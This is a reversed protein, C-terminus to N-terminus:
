ALLPQMPVPEIVESDESVESSVVIEELPLKFVQINNLLDQSLLDLQDGLQQADQSQQLIQQALTAISEIGTVTLDAAGVIRQSAISVTEGAQVAQTTVSQVNLFVERTYKVGKTFSNVLGGLQQVNINVASVVRHIQSSRQELNTLGANTEQALQSVQNAILEFERAVITFQQPDRQEAARAAVLAANLALIQTQTVIEGQDQVFQDTLGIFESLTKIEQVIRDSGIQLVDIDQDLNAITRHGDTVASQLITLSKNTSDLQQLANQASQRMTKTSRLVKGMSKTQRDINGTVMTTINKQRRGNAEVRRAAGAVQGLIKGLEETLRNIKDNVLGTVRNNVPAQITLDGSEIESVVDLLKSVDAQFQENEQQTLVVLEQRQQIEQELVDNTSLLSNQSVWLADQTLKQERIYGRVAIIIGVTNIVSLILSLLELAISLELIRQDALVQDNSINKIHAILTQISSAYNKKQQVYQEGLISASAATLKQEKVLQLVQSEIKFLQDSATNFQQQIDKDSPAVNQLFEKMVPNFLLVNDQYRKEWQPQGNSVVMNISMTLVEDLYIMQNSLNQLRDHREVTIQLNRSTNWINWTTAGNLMSNLCVSSIIVSVLNSRVFQSIKQHLPLQLSNM